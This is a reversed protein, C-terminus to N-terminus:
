LENNTLNISERWSYTPINLVKSVYALVVIYDGASYPRKVLRAAWFRLLMIVSTFTTLSVIWIFLPEGRPVLGSMIHSKINLECSLNLSDAYLHTAGEPIFTSLLINM